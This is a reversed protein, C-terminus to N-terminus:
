PDSVIKLIPTEDEPVSKAGDQTKIEAWRRDFTKECKKTRQQWAWIRDRRTDYEKLIVRVIEWEEEKTAQRVGVKNMGGPPTFALSNVEEELTTTVLDKWHAETKKQRWALYDPLGKDFLVRLDVAVNLRKSESWVWNIVENVEEASLTPNDTPWGAKCIRHRALAVLMLDSPSHGLTHVRSKLAALMGRNEIALNSVCIIGGTFTVRVQQGQRVYSTQWAQGQLRGLAALLYQVAKKDTFIVSVDDLIIVKDHHKAMIELLGQATIHGKHYEYQVSMEDLTALVLHTKGTGPRGHWYFGTSEMRGVQRIRDRAVLLKKDLEGLAALELHAQGPQEDSKGNSQHNTAPPASIPRIIIKADPIPDVFTLQEPLGLGWCFWAVPFWPHSTVQTPTEFQIRKDLLMVQIGNRRFLSQRPSSELATFPLLFAFPKGLDYARALFENKLSFPPNTVICHWDDPPQWTLFDKGENKDTAIVTRGAQRLGQVLNGKGCACEWITWDTRLYTLLPELAEPPTQFADSGNRSM